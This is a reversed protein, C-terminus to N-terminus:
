FQNCIPMLCLVHLSSFLWLPEKKPEWTWKEMSIGWPLELKVLNKANFFLSGLYGRPEDRNFHVRWFLNGCFIKAGDFVASLTELGNVLSPVALKAKKFVSNSFWKFDVGSGFKQLVFNRHFRKTTFALKSFELIRLLSQCFAQAKSVLLHFKNNTCVFFSKWPYNQFCFCIFM